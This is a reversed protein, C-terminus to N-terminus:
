NKKEIKELKKKEKDNLKIPELENISSFKKIANVLSYKEFEAKAVSNKTNLDHQRQIESHLALSLIFM